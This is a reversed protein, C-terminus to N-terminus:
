GSLQKVFKKPTLVRLKFRKEIRKAPESSVLQKDSTIFIDMGGHLADIYAGQDRISSGSNALKKLEDKIEDNRKIDDWTGSLDKWTGILDDWTGIPWYPLLTITKALEFAEDPKKSLEELSHRSIFLRIENKKLLKLIRLMAVYSDSTYNVADIFCNTDLAIKM